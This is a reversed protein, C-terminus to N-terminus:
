SEVKVAVIQQHCKKGEFEIIFDFTKGVEVTFEISDMDTSFKVLKKEGEAVWVELVDPNKEPQLRWRSHRDGVQYKISSVNSKITPVKDQAMAGAVILLLISIIGLKKM